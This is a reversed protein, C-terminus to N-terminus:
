HEVLKALEKVAEHSYQKPLLISEKTRSNTVVLSESETPKTLKQWTSVLGYVAAVSAASSLIALIASQM